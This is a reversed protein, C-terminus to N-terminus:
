AETTFRRSMLTLKVAQATFRPGQGRGADLACNM